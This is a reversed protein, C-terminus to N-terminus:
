TLFSVNAMAPIYMLFIRAAFFIKNHFCDMNKTADSHSECFSKMSLDLICKTLLRLDFLIILHDCAEFKKEGSLETKSSM